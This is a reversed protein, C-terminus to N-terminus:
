VPADVTEVLALTGDGSRYVVSCRDTAANRFVLIDSGLLELQVAAEDPLMPPMASTTTRAIRPAPWAPGPAPRAAALLRSPPPLPAAVLGSRLGRRRVRTVGRAKHRALQREFRTVAVDVAARHDPGRGEVRIRERKTRGTLEVLAPRGVGETAFVVEVALLRDLFRAAHEVRQVAAQRIRPSVECRAKITIDV